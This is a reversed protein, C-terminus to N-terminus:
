NTFSLVKIEIKEDENDPDCITSNSINVDDSNEIRSKIEPEFENYKTDRMISFMSFKNEDELKVVDSFIKLPNDFSNLPRLRMNTNIDLRDVNKLTGYENGTQDLEKIDLSGLSEKIMNFRDEYFQNKRFICDGYVFFLYRINNGLVWGVVYLMDRSKWDECTKADDTIMKDNSFLKQKPLSSNLQIGGIKSEIKKIEIADGQNRIMADPPNNVGGEYCFVDTSVNESQKSDPRGCFLARVFKELPKGENSVANNVNEQTNTLSFDKCEALNLLATLVNM